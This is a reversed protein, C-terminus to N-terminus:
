DNLKTCYKKTFEVIRSLFKDEISIDDKALENQIYSCIEASSVYSEFGEQFFLDVHHVKDFVNHEYNAQMEHYLYVIHDVQKVSYVSKESESIRGWIIDVLNSYDVM